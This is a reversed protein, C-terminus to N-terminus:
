WEHCSIIMLGGHLVTRWLNAWFPKKVGSSYFAKKQFLYGWVKPPSIYSNSHEWDFGNQSIWWSAVEEILEKQGELWFILLLVCHNVNCSESKERLLRFTPWPVPFCCTLFLFCFFFLLCFESTRLNWYLTATKKWMFSFVNRQNQTLTTLVEM